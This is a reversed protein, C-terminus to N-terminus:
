NKFGIPPRDMGEWETMTQLFKIVHQSIMEETMQNPEITAIVEADKQTVWEEIYPFGIIVNIKGNYSQCYALYGGYKVYAKFKKPKGTENDIITEVMGSSQNNCNINITQYNEIQELRQIHWDFKFSNQILTLIEIIKDKTETKWLQRREQVTKLTDVYKDFATKVKDHNQLVRTM